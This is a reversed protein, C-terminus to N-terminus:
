NENTEKIQSKSLPYLQIGLNYVRTQTGEELFACLERRFKTILKKAEPLRDESIAMTMSTIDKEEPKCHDIADLAKQLVQRQYEKHAASTMGPTFNTIFDQAKILRGDEERLLDLRLLRELAIRAESVTIGLAGSIREPDNKLEDTYTLELIASYYWHTMVAFADEAILLYDTTVPPTAALKKKTFASKEFQSIQTPTAGLRECIQRLVRSSPKRKGALIKSVSSADM